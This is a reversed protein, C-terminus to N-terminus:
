ITSKFYVPMNQLIVRLRFRIFFKFQPLRVAKKDRHKSLNNRLFRIPSLSIKRSITIFNIFFVILMPIITTLIFANGNWLTKYTPLSYSSYYLNAIFDKFYTYGTINGLVAAAITIMTPLFLYHKIIEKM